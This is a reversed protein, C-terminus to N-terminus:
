LRIVLNKGEIAIPPPESSGGVIRPNWSETEYVYRVNGSMIEHIAQRDVSGKTLGDSHTDRTDTWWLASLVGIDLLEHLYQVHSRLGKEDQIESVTATTGAFVSM